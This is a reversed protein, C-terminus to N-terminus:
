WKAPSYISSIKLGSKEKKFFILKISEGKEPESLKVCVYNPTYAHYSKIQYKKGDCEWIKQVSQLNNFWYSMGGQERTGMKESFVEQYCNVSNVLQTADAKSAVVRCSVAKEIQSKMSKFDTNAAWLSQTAFLALFLYIM